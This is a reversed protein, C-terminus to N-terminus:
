NAAADTLKALAGTMKNVVAERDGIQHRAALASPATYGIWVQGSADEWAAVRIPLDIAASQQSAMLATGVKPNGFILLQTPRLSEGVKAAAGAHDVRAVVTFGKETVIKSLRDLTSSVSHMSKKTVLVEEGASAAQTVLALLLVILRLVPLRRTGAERSMARVRHRCGAM